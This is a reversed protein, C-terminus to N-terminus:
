TGQVFALVLGSIAGLLLALTPVFTLAFGLSRKEPAKYYALAYLVRGVPWVLGIVGGWIGGILSQFLWLSPLFIVIQELTNQQVRFAREFDPNGSTAPAKIDYKVRAQGVKVSTWLYVLLALITVLVVLEHGLYM